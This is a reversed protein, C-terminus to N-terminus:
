DALVYPNAFRPRLPPEICGHAPETIAGFREALLTIASSLALSETTAHIEVRSGDRFHVPRLLDGGDIVYMLAAFTPGAVAYPRPEIEIRFAANAFVVEQCTM